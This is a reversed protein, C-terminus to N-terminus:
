LQPRRRLAKTGVIYYSQRQEYDRLRGELYISRMETEQAKVRLAHNAAREQLLFQETQLQAQYSSELALRTESHKAAEQRLTSIIWDIQPNPQPAQYSPDLFHRAADLSKGAQQLAPQAQPNASLPNQFSYSYPRPQTGFVSERSMMLSPNFSHLIFLSNHHYLVM